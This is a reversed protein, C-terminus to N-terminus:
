AIPSVENASELPAHPAHPADRQLSAIHDARMLFGIGMIVLGFIPLVIRVWALPLGAFSVIMVLVGVVM